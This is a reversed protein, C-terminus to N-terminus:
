RPRGVVKRVFTGDDAPATWKGGRLFKANRQLMAIRRWPSVNAPSGGVRKKLREQFEEAMEVGLRGSNGGRGLRFGEGSSNGCCWEWRM